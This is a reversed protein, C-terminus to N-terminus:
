GRGLVALAADRALGRLGFGEARRSRYTGTRVARALARFRRESRYVAARAELAAALRAYSGAEDQAAPLEPTDALLSAWARAQEARRGYYDGGINAAHRIATSTGRDPVGFVNVSHQRYLALADSLFAIKGTVRAVGYIWEDHLLRRGPEHAPPRAEWPLATLLRRSFVMAMGPAQLWKHTTLPEAVSSRGMRPVNEGTPSLHEDVVLCTHVVLCVEPDDFAGACRALKTGFWVDDQDSFAILPRSCLTAAKVFNEGVGLPEENREIRVPFPAQSAFCELIAVTGDTSADDSAVLEAPPQTQEAISALQEELYREGNRTALAVAVATM